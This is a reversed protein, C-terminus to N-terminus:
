QDDSVFGKLENSATIQIFKKLVEFGNLIKNSINEDLNENFEIM